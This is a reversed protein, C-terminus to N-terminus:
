RKLRRKKSMLKLKFTSQLLLLKFRNFASFRCVFDNGGVLSKLDLSYFSSIFFIDFDKRGGSPLVNGAAEKRKM